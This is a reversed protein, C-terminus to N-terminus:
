SEASSTFSTIKPKGTASSLPYSFSLDTRDGYVSLLSLPHFVPDLPGATGITFNMWFFSSQKKLKFTEGTNRYVHDELM